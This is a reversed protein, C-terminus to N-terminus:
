YFVEVVRWLLQQRDVADIDADKLDVAFKVCPAVNARMLAAWDALASDELPNDVVYIVVFLNMAACIIVILQM